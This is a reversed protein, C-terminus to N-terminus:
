LWTAKRQLIRRETNLGLQAKHARDEWKNHFVESEKPNATEFWRYIIYNVLAERLYTEVVPLVNRDQWEALEVKMVISGRCDGDTEECVIIDTTRSDYDAGVIGYRDTGDKNVFRIYDGKNLTYDKFINTIEVEVSDISKVTVNGLVSPEIRIQFGYAGQSENSDITTTHEEVYQRNDGIPAGDIGTTYNFTIKYRVESAEGVFITISPLSVSASFISVGQQNPTGSINYDDSTLQLLYRLGQKRGEAFIHVGHNELITHLNGDPYIRFAQNLNRGFAKIWNYTEAAAEQLYDDTLFSEGETLSMRDLMHPVDDAGRMSGIKSTHKEVREKIDSIPFIFSHKDAM